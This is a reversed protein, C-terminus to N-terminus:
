TLSHAKGELCSNLDSRVLTPVIGNISHEPAIVEAVGRKCM